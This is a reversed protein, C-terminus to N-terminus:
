PLKRSTKARGAGNELKHAQIYHLVSPLEDVEQAIRSEEMSLAFDELSPETISSGQLCSRPVMRGARFATLDKPCVRYLSIPKQNTLYYVRAMAKLQIRCPAYGWNWTDWYVQYRMIEEDGFEIMKEALLLGMPQPAQDASSLRRTCYLARVPFDFDDSKIARLDGFFHAPRKYCFRPPYIEAVTGDLWERQIGFLKATRDLNEDTLESLLAEKSNLKDLGLGPLMRPIQSVAVGHAGFLSLFREAVIETQGRDKKAFLKRLLGNISVTVPGIPIGIDIVDAAM